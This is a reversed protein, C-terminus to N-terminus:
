ETTESQSCYFIFLVVYIVKYSGYWIVFCNPLYIVSQYGVLLGVL